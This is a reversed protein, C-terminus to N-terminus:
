CTGEGSWKQLRNLDNQTRVKDEVTRATGRLKPSAFKTLMIERGGDLRYHFFHTSALWPCSMCFLKPSVVTAFLQLCTMHNEFCISKPKASLEM